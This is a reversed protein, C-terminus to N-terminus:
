QYEIVKEGETIKIVLEDPSIRLYNSIAQIQDERPFTHWLDDIRSKLLDSIYLYEIKM